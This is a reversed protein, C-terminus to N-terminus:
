DVHLLVQSAPLEEILIATPQGHHLGTHSPSESRRERGCQDSLKTTVRRGKGQTSGPEKVPGLVAILIHRM